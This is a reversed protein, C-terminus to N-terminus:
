ALNIEYQKCGVEIKLVVVEESFLVDNKRYTVLQAEVTDLGRKYTSAKFETQHLKALLDDYMDVGQCLKGVYSLQLVVSVGNSKDYDLLIMVMVSLRRSTRQYYKKSEVSLLSLFINGSVSQLTFKHAPATNVSLSAIVFKLKNEIAAFMYKADPYQSFTLQHENPLAMLLLGRAKVDNKKNTKEKNEKVEWLAYDQIHFYQKIRIVWMKYKGLKLIPLKTTPGSNTYKLEMDELDFNRLAFSQYWKNIGFMFNLNDDLRLEKMPIVLSEDSICKKLNTVHFTSYVNNLEEPLELKYTVPDVVKLMVRDRVQFELPKRRVNAYSRQRDRAAQLRQRIQVIKKTTEHIIEPGTLQVDRVEAWCIPSRCKRGYLAKFPAAKISAHYPEKVQRAIEPLYTTSMDLQTGLANQMSQWFRSTFHSDRDSIISIPVGHRSVIEKIYLRTLTEMSDTAKTPIFYASKTLRDIIVWITDHGSSTKPLKTVFDMTIREWKWTPIKPQILLGSPNQCEAKVRSCTLCKGVYEAIIAKMNPWWYLKKLDQYMKDSGPHISYAGLGQHSADCYVVFDDNGEPLALIPASECGGRGVVCLWGCLKQKLLQFASEQNEGWIYKKKKQTLKTLPKAIKSFGEVFRQYYSALGLFQRVETPTTPSAWNKVAEIKTPDVHIGQSDIVHGLFQVISIWFDCKSFKAYLKEKKLLELIIRLHDAHEEKNRSYILIDDIFVIVFKDLYPKCVHNMLDMFVAPANTLGFPMVQFEYHGYRTGHSREPRPSCEQGKAHISEMPVTTKESPVSKNYQGKRRTALKVSLMALDQNMLRQTITIAEELTQPKSATVNGEISRPLGGIFVEMLKESNPVMNPCLVALEETRPCYKKILLQKFKSWTIKYAEEIGIPRTFSNWWSLAEETLTGTAFKVKCDETYNDNPKEPVPESELPKMDRGSLYSMLPYDPPPTPSITHEINQDNIMDMIYPYLPKLFDSPLLSMTVRGNGLGEIKEEMHEIRELPLEYNTSAIPAQPLPIPSEDNIANYAQIVKMYPDDHFPSIALSALLDKSLDKSPDSSTNGPSALSYDPSAPTYDHTNTSSFADEIYSDSLVIILNTSTSMIRLDLGCQEMPQKIGGMWAGGTKEGGSFDEGNLLVDESLERIRTIFANKEDVKRQTERVLSLLRAAKETDDGKLQLLAYRAPGIMSDSGAVRALEAVDDGLSSVYAIKEGIKMETEKMMLLLHTGKEMDIYGSRRRVNNKLQHAMRKFDEVRLADEMIERNVLFKLQDKTVVVDVGVLFFLTSSWARFLM